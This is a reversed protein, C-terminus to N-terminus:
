YWKSLERLSEIFVDDAENTMLHDILAQMSRPEPIVDDVLNIDKAQPYRLYAERAFLAELRKVLPTPAPATRELYILKQLADIEHLQAVLSTMAAANLTENKLFNHNAQHFRLVSQKTMIRRTGMEFLTLAESYAKGHVVTVLSRAHPQLLSRMKFM